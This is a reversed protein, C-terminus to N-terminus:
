PSLGNFVEALSQAVGGVPGDNSLVTLPCEATLSYYLATTKALDQFRSISDVSMDASARRRSLDIKARELIRGPDSEVFVIVQPALERLAHNPVGAVIQGGSAVIAHSDVLADTTKSARVVQEWARGRARALEARQSVQTVQDRDVEMHGRKMEAVIYNGVNLHRAPKSLLPLSAEIVRSKGVGSVGLILLCTMKAM